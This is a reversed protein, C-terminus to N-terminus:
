QLGTQFTHVCSVHRYLTTYSLFNEIYKHLEHMAFLCVTHFKHTCAQLIYIQLYAYYMGAKIKHAILCM